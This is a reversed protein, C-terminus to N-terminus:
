EAHGEDHEAPEAHLRAARHLRPERAAQGSEVEGEEDQHRHPAPHALELGHRVPHGQMVLRVERSRVRANATANAGRTAEAEPPVAISDAPMSRSSLAESCRPAPRYM